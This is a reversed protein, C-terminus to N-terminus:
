PAVFIQVTDAVLNPGEAHSTVHVSVGSNLDSWSGRNNGVLYITKDTTKFTRERSLSGHGMKTPPPLLWQVTFSHSNQDIRSIRRGRGPTASTRVSPSVLAVRSPTARAAASPSPTAVRRPTARAGASPSPTVSTEASPSANEWHCKQIDEAAQEATVERWILSNIGGGSIGARMAAPDLKLYVVQDPLVTIDIGHRRREIVDMGLGLLGGSFPTLAALTKTTPTSKEPLDAFAISLPGSAAEYTYFGGVPLRGPLAVDNAFLYEPDTRFGPERYIILLGYGKHPTFGNHVDSYVPGSPGSACGSFLAFTIAGLLREVMHVTATRNLQYRRLTRWNSIIITKMTLAALAAFVAPVLRESSWVWPQGM